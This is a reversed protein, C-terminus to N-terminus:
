VLLLALGCIFAAVGLGLLISGTVVIGRGDHAPSDTRARDPRLPSFYVTIDSGPQLGACEATTADVQHVDGSRDFWRILTGGGGSAIVGTTSVWRSATARITLGVALLVTGSILGIWTFLESILALADITNM